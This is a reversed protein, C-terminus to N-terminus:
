RGGAANYVNRAEEKRRENFRRAEDAEARDAKKKEEGGGGGGGGGAEYPRVNPDDEDLWADDESDYGDLSIKYQRKGGVGGGGGTTGKREALVRGPVWKDDADPALAMVRTGPKFVHPEVTRPKTFQRPPTAIAKTKLYAEEAEKAKEAALKAMAEVREREERAVERVEALRREAERAREAEAAEVAEREKRVKAAEVVRREEEVADARAKKQGDLQQALFSARSEAVSKAKEAREARNEAARAAVEERKEAAAARAEAEAVAKEAEALKAELAAKELSLEATEKTAESLEKTRESLLVELMRQDDPDAAEQARREAAAARAEAAEARAVSAALKGDDSQLVVASESVGRSHHSEAAKQLKKLEEEPGDLMVIKSGSAIRLRRKGDFTDLAIASGHGLQVSKKQWDLVGDSSLTVHRQKFSSGLLGKQKCKLDGTFTAM